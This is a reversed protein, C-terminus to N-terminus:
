IKMRLLVGFADTDFSGVRADPSSHLGRRGTSSLSGAAM